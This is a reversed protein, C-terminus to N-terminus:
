TVDCVGALDLESENVAALIPGSTLLPSAIRVRVGRAIADRLAGAVVDGVPGPLRVDYLALDLGARAEGLWAVLREAVSEPGQGSDELTWADLM